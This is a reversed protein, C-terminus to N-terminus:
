RAKELNSGDASIVKQSEPPSFLSAGPNYQYISVKKEYCLIFASLHVYEAAGIIATTTWILEFIHFLILFIAATNIGFREYPLGNPQENVSGWSM